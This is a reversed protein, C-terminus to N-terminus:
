PTDFNALPNRPSRALARENMLMPNAADAINFTSKPNLEAATASPTIQIILPQTAPMLGPQNM